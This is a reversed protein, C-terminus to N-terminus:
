LHGVYILRVSSEFLNGSSFSPLLSLLWIHHDPTRDRCTYLTPTLTSLYLFLRLLRLPVCLHEWRFIRGPVLSTGQVNLGRGTLVTRKYFSSTLHLFNSNKWNAIILYLLSGSLSVTRCHVTRVTHWVPTGEWGSPEKVGRLFIFLFRIVNHWTLHWSVFSRFFWYM